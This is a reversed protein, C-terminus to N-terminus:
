IPILSLNTTVGVAGDLVAPAAVLASVAVPLTGTTSELFGVTDAGMGPPARYNGYLELALTARASSLLTLNSGAVTGWAMSLLLRKATRSRPGLDLSRIIQLVIPLMLAAVAHSVVVFCLTFSVLLVGNWLRNEDKAFRRLGVRRM